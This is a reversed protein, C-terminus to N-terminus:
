VLGIRVRRNHRGKNDVKIITTARAEGTSRLHTGGCAQRDFGAIEVIRVTGDREPPPTVMKSRFTGPELKAADWPMYSTKIEMDAKIADNVPGIINRLNVNDVGPLDFDLRFSGDEALQAGTLLADFERYVVANVIHAVSHLECMLKRFSKDVNVLVTGSPEVTSNFVHWIGRDSPKVSSVLLEGDSWEIKCRDPLQGGGGPFAPSRELLIMGPRFDIVNSELELVDPYDFYFARQM